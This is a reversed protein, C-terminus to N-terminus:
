VYQQIFQMIPATQLDKKDSQSPVTFLGDENLTILGLEKMAILAVRTKCLNNDDVQTKSLLYEYAQTDYPVGRRLFTYLAGFIDRSPLAYAAQEKTLPHNARICDFIREGKMMAADDAGAPRIDQVITSVSQIGNYLNRNLTCVLDITDGRNYPFNKDSFRLVNIKVNQGERHVTLRRHQDHDGMVHVADIVMNYLGFVPSPNDTGFPELLDISDLLGLSIAQPNLKCDVRLHPYIEEIEYAYENIARIFDILKDDAVTVGAALEHGGYALLLDKNADLAEFINFGDVSRCSGKYTDDKHTLVIVPRMYRSILKSAVIGLVGEQWDEGFVVMVPLHPLIPKEKMMAVADEYIKAEADHRSNNLNNLNQALEYAEAPDEALLLDLALEASQMRGAANIRPAIGFSINQSTLRKGKLGAVELIAEVGPRQYNNLASLGLTVLKRNEGYMPVLDAVTGIAVLDIYDEIIREANGEIACCLKFAVGVGCFERFPVDFDMRHPDVIAVCDPLEDGPLHHDTVVLEMGLEKIYNAEEVAAIGNDVTVILDTGLAKIKDVVSRSLGYGDTEREPLLCTVNAGQAELYSYLLATSTVGDADYDGYVCIREYDFIANNIREVAKEMDPLLFADSLDEPESFFDDLASENSIGRQSLLLAAFPDLSYEEALRAALEKNPAILDWMKRSM